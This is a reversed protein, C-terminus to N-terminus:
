ASILYKVPKYSKRHIGDIVGYNYLAMKHMKTGYGVHAEFGYYPYNLSLEAMYKDRSVKAYISAASVVPITIDANVICKTNNFKSEIYNVKGDFIIEDSSKAGLNTLARSVGLKMANALGGKDIESASVWGEGFNFNVILEDFMIDRKQRTLLKSDTLGDPLIGNLRAAVVLLPGAWSGRGVEDIGIM